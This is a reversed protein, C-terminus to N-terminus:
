KGLFEQTELGPQEFNTQKNTKSKRHLALLKAEVTTGFWGTLTHVNRTLSLM